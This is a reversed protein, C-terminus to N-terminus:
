VCRSTYLLCRWLKEYWAMSDEPKCLVIMEQKEFQHIRYIVREELGHAGKEKRFCPSYSTLTLPLQAEPILQDVLHTYSVTEVSDCILERSPLSYKMGIHGM